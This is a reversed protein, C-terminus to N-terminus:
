PLSRLEVLAHLPEKRSTREQERPGCVMQYDCWDCQGPAPAAPLFAKAISDDIIKLVRQLDHRADDQTPVQVTQYNGRQTCYYLRSIKVTAGLLAEVAMAYLLPQLIQGGGVHHPSQKPAKGTKHDTLRLAGSEQHREIWDISGRLQVGDMIRAPETTSHPDRGERSMGFAYESHIVQWGQADTPLRRLWGKWDARLDEIEGKWVRPIAPALKEEYSAAVEDFVTDALAQFNEISEARLFLQFVADHFLSGRTLPDMEELPVSEQRPRLKHIGQLFFRYPCAAFHQLSSASWSREALREKALITRVEESSDLLGDVTSWKKEWRNFRSRLSRTLHPNLAMLYRGAGRAQDRPLSLARHLVSLDYELPDVARRPDSPAPWGLRTEGGLAARREFAKLEPLRGEAARMVEMAYFSPVRPRNQTVDMRPYSVVLKGSAAAAAIRLRLREDAVRHDRLPLGDDIQSRYEDLLLPDEFAKKPFIGEALGPLFVIDFAQGRAEDISGIWVCGYRAKQPPRRLFRLRDTLVLLVEDLTVPGVESMAWLENLALLVSDPRKLTLQALDTLENLWDGWTASKPLADLRDIVPLALRQLNRLQELQRELHRRQTEDGDELRDLHLLFENELGRLRRQWRERGGVVAADVILREWAAPTAPSSPVEDQGTADTVFEERSLLDDETAYTASSGAAMAREQEIAPAQGLSLYEAFRTAPYGEVACSLLSLFARGAADPRVSGHTFYAPVGARHLAEELLPQYRVPARLLIAIRDFPTGESAIHHIRRAIETCELGEGAASFFDFSGDSVPNDTVRTSFLHERLTGLTTADQHPISADGDLTALRAASEEDGNVILALTAPAQSSLAEVFRAILASTVPMDLMLLPLRRFRHRDEKVVEIALEILAPFDALRSEGLLDNYLRALTAIDYGPAGRRAVDKISVAEMRLERLTRSLARPFGPFSAVPNFYTIGGENKLQHIARAALAEAGLGNLPALGREARAGATLQSILQPLTFRHIGAVDGCRTRVFDDAAGRTPAILLVEGSGAHQKVFHAAEELISENTAARLVRRM